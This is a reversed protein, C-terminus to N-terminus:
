LLLLNTSLCFLSLSFLDANYIWSVMELCGRVVGAFISCYNLSGCNDPLEVFETLPNDEIM